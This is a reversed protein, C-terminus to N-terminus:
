GIQSATRMCLLAKLSVTIGRECHAFKLTAFHM